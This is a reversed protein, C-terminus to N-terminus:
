RATIKKVQPKPAKRASANKSANKTANSTSPADQTDLSDDCDGPNIGSSSSGTVFELATIVPYVDKGPPGPAVLLSPATTKVLPADLSDDQLSLPSPPNLVLTQTPALVPALVPASASSSLSDTIVALVPSLSAVAAPSAPASLAPSPASATASVSAVSPAPVPALAPVPAMNSTAGASNADM